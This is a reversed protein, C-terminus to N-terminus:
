IAPLVFLVVSLAVLKVPFALVSCNKRDAFRMLVSEVMQGDPLAFLYKRTGDKSVQLHKLELLPIKAKKALNERVSAPLDTMQDLIAQM